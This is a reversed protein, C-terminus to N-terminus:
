TKNDITDILVYWLHKSPVDNFQVFHNAIHLTEELSGTRWIPLSEHMENEWIFPISHITELLTVDNFQSSCMGNSQIEQCLIHFREAKESRTILLSRKIIEQQSLMIFLILDNQPYSKLNRIHQEVNDRTGGELTVFDQSKVDYFTMQMMTVRGYEMTGTQSVKNRERHTM